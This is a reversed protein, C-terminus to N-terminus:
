IASEHQTLPLSRTGVGRVVVDPDSESGMLAASCHGLDQNNSTELSGAGSEHGSPGPIGMEIVGGPQEQAALENKKCFYWSGFYFLTTM